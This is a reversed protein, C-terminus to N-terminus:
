PLWALGSEIASSQTLNVVSNTELDLWFVDNEPQYAQHGIFVIQDEAIWQPFFISVFGEAIRTVSQNHFSVMYTVDVPAFILRDDASWALSSHSHLNDILIEPTEMGLEYWFIAFRSNHTASFTLKGSRSWALCCVHDNLTPTVSLTTRWEYDHILINHGPSDIASSSYALYRGDFSWAPNSSARSEVPSMQEVRQMWPDRVFVVSTNRAGYGVYALRGDASVAPKPEPLPHVNLDTLTISNADFSWLTTEYRYEDTSFILQGDQSWALNERSPLHSIYIPAETRRGADMVMLHPDYDDMNFRVFALWGSPKQARSALVCALAAVLVLVGVRLVLQVCV